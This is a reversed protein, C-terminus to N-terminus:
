AGTYCDHIAVYRRRAYRRMACFCGTELMQTSFMGHRPTSGLPEYSENGGCVGHALLGASARFRNWVVRLVKQSLFWLLPRRCLRRSITKSRDPLVPVFSLGRRERLYDAQLPARAGSPTGGAAGRPVTPRRQAIKTFSLGYPLRGLVRFGGYDSESKKAFPQLECHWASGDSWDLATPRM